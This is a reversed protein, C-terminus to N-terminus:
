LSDRTFNSFVGIIEKEEPVKYTNIKSTKKGLDVISEAFKIAAAVGDIVPVELEKELQAAFDTMGACGLVIAEAGDEKVAKIGEQRLMEMGRLPERNFDLVSLPTARISALRFDMGYNRILTEINTKDRSLATLVSFRPALMSALYLSAEAIGVVPCCTIERAAQLGPDGFCAIVFADVDDGATKVEELVGPLSLAEDYNSEISAPGMKPQVAIIETGKRAVNRATIEIEKTMHTSTNPNIVKLKMETEEM